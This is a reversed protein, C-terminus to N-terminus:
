QYSALLHRLVVRKEIPKAYYSNKRTALFSVGADFNIIQAFREINEQGRIAIGPSHNLSELKSDIGLGQLLTAVVGLVGVDKQYGRVAKKGTEARYTVSGEDNFFAKLFEVQHTREMQGINNLLVEKRSLLFEALNRSFFHVRWVGDKNKGWRPELGFLKQGNKAFKRALALHSSYYIAQDHRISGDFLCHALFRAM